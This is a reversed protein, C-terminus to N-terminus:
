RSVIIGRIILSRVGGNGCQTIAKLARLCLRPKTNNTVNCSSFNAKALAYGQDRLHQLRNQGASSSPYVTEYRVYSEVTFGGDFSFQGEVGWALSSAILLLLQLM